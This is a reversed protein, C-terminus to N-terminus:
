NEPRVRGELIMRAQLDMNGDDFWREPWQELQNAVAEVAQNFDEGEELVFEVVDDDEEPRQFLLQNCPSRPDNYHRYPDAKDVVAM